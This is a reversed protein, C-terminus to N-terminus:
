KSRLEDIERLDHPDIVDRYEDPDFRQVLYRRGDDAEERYYAIWRRIEDGLRYRWMEAAGEVEAPDRWFASEEGTDPRGTVVRLITAVNVLERTTRDMLLAKRLREAHLRYRDEAHPDEHAPTFPLRTSEGVVWRAAEAFPLDADPLVQVDAYPDSPLLLTMPPVDLAAALVFIEPVSVVARRGNELNALIARDIRHGFEETRDALERGSLGRGERLAAIRAGIAYVFQDAWADSDRPKPSM